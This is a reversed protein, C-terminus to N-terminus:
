DKKGAAKLFESWPVAPGHIPAITSVELGLRKVHSYFSAHSAATGPADPERPNYLDAEIIIKEKPLFAM